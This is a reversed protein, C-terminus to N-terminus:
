EVSKLDAYRTAWSYSKNFLGYWYFVTPSYKPKEWIDGKPGHYNGSEPDYKLEEVM